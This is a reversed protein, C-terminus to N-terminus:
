HYIFPGALEGANCWGMPRSTLEVDGNILSRAKNRGLDIVDLGDGASVREVAFERNCVTGKSRFKKRIVSFHTHM